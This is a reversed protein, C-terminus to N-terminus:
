EEKYVAAGALTAALLTVLALVSGKVFADMTFIGMRTYGYLIMTIAAYPILAAYVATTPGAGCRPRIAAYTWVVLIGLLFDVVIWAVAAGTGDVVAPNLSLRQVMQQMDDAMLISYSVFDLANAVVGALLGGILVRGTNIKGM